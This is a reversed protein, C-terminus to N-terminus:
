KGALDTSKGVLFVYIKIRLLVNTYPAPIACDTLRIPYSSSSGPEPFSFNNCTMESYNVFVKSLYCVPIRRMVVNRDVVSEIYSPPGM